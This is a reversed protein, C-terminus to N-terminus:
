ALVSEFPLLIIISAELWVQPSLSRFPNSPSKSKM